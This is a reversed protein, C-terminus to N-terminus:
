FTNHIHSIRKYYVPIDNDVYEGSVSGLISNGGEGRKWLNTKLHEPKAWSEMTKTEAIPLFGAHRASWIM